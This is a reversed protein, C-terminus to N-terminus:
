LVDMGMEYLIGNVTDIDCGELICFEMVLDYARAPSITYGASALLDRAEDINLRLAFIFAYIVKASPAQGNRIKSFYKRDIGARKYAEADTMGRESILRLLRDSFTEQPKDLKSKLRSLINDLHTGIGPPIAGAGFVVPEERADRRRIGHRERAEEFPRLAPHPMKRSAEEIVDGVDLLHEAIYRRIKALLEASPTKHPPIM